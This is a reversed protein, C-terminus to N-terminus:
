YHWKTGKSTDEIIIGQKKLEKRIFDSIKFVKKKRAKDRVSVLLDVIESVDGQEEVEVKVGLVGLLEIVKDRAAHIWKKSAKGLLKNVKKVLQFVQALAKPTNFDDNMARIFEKEHSNIDAKLSKRGFSKQSNVSSIMNKVRELSNQATEMMGKNFDIQSRYHGSVLALRVPVAGWKDIADRATIFNGKSKSMKEGKLTLHAGHLWYNAFLKGTYSESQAIENVHHVPVHDIGGAHIDLTPGLYKLAMVSCEVHWGPYGKSWPSSWKMLHNDPAKLWLAFDRPHKKDPDVEVRAGAKLDKLKLRALKGYDKFKSTNFYVNGKVEYAYGKDLLSKVMDQMEILHGTARPSINPRLMNLEDMDRWYQKIKEDVLEMPELRRLRARKEIKDEGQDADDTLHGVDTFNQVHFVNYGRWRLYRTVVDWNSYMRANGIHLDDYVTQGCSYFKVYKSQQPKFVEKKRSMTNYVKLVMDIVM